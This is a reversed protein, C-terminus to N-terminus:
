DFPDGLHNVLTRGVDDTQLLHIHATSARTSHVLGTPDGFQQAHVETKM